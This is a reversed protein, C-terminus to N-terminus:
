PPSALMATSAFPAHVAVVSAVQSFNLAVLPLPLAPMLTVAAAFLSVSCGRSALIVRVQPVAVCVTVTACAFASRISAVRDPPLWILLSLTVRVIVTVALPSHVTSASTSQIVTSLPPLSLLVILTLTCSFSEMERSRVPLRVNVQPVAVSVTVM